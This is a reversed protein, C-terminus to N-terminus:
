KILELDFDREAVVENDGSFISLKCSHTETIGDHGIDFIAPVESAKSPSLSGISQVSISPADPSTCIVEIQQHDNLAIQKLLPNHISLVLYERAGLKSSISAIGAPFEIQTEATASHTDPQIVIGEGGDGFFENDVYILSIVIALLVIGIVLYKNM